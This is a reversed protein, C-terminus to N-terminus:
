IGNVILQIFLYVRNVIVFILRSLTLISRTKSSSQPQFPMYRCPAAIYIQGLLLTMNEVWYAWASAPTRQQPCSKKSNWNRQTDPPKKHHTSKLPHNTSTVSDPPREGSQLNLVTGYKTMKVSHEGTALKFCSFM